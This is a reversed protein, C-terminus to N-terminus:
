MRPKKRVVAESIGESVEEALKTKLFDDYAQSQRSVRPCLGHHFPGMDEDFTVLKYTRESAEVIVLPDSIEPEDNYVQVVPYGDEIMISVTFGVGRYGEPKLNVNIEGKYCHVKADYRNTKGPKKAKALDILTTDIIGAEVISM